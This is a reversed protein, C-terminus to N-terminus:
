DEITINILLMDMKDVEYTKFMNKAHSQQRVDNGSEIDEKMEVVKCLGKAIHENVIEKIEEVKVENVDYDRKNYCTKQLNKKTCKKREM